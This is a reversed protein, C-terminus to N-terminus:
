IKYVSKKQSFNEILFLKNQFNPDLILCKLKHMGIKLMKDLANIFEIFKISPIFEKALEIIVIIKNIMKM